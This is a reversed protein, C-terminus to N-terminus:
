RQAEWSRRVLDDWRVEAREAETQARKWRMEAALVMAGDEGAQVAAQVANEAREAGRYAEKLAEWTANAEDDSPAVPAGGIRGAGRGAGQAASVTSQAGALMAEMVRESREQIMPARQRMWMTLWEADDARLTVTRHQM